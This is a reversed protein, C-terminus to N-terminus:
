DLIIPGDNEEVYYNRRKKWFDMSHYITQKEKMGYLTRVLGWVFNPHYSRNTTMAQELNCDTAFMDLLLRQLKLVREPAEWLTNIDKQAPFFGGEKRKKIATDVCCNQLRPAGIRDALTYVAILDSWALGACTESESIIDGTYLWNRFRHFIDPREYKLVIIQSVLGDESM